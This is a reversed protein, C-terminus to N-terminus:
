IQRILWKLFRGMAKFIMSFIASIATTILGSFINIYINREDNTNPLFNMIFENVTAFISPGVVVLLCVLLLVFSYIHARNKTILYFSSNTIPNYGYILHYLKNYFNEDKDFLYASNNGVLVFWKFLVAINMACTFTCIESRDYKTIKWESVNNILWSIQKIVKPHYPSIGLEFLQMLITPTFSYYNKQSNYKAGAECVIQEDDWKVNDLPMHNFIFKICKKCNTNFFVLVDNLNDPKSEILCKLAKLAWTTAALNFRDNFKWYALGKECVINDKLYSYALDITKCIEKDENKTFNFSKYNNPHRVLSIAWLSLSTMIVNASCNDSLQYAWGKESQKIQKCLWLISKKFRDTKKIGCKQRDLLAIIALSTSWVSVGESLSWGDLDEKYKKLQGKESDNNECNDRLYILRNQLNDLADYPILAAAELWIIASALPSARYRKNDGLLYPLAGDDTFSKILEDILPTIKEKLSNAGIIYEEVYNIRELISNHLGM